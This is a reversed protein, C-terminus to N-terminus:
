NLQIGVPVPTILVLLGLWRLRACFLFGRMVYRAITLCTCIRCSILRTSNGCSSSNSSHPLMKSTTTPAPARRAALRARPPSARSNARRHTPQPSLHVYQISTALRPALTRVEQWPDPTCTIPYPVAPDAVNKLPVYTKFFKQAARAVYVIHDETLNYKSRLVDDIAKSNNGGAGGIAFHVNGHVADESNYLYESYPRNAAYDQVFSTYDACTAGLYAVKAQNSM